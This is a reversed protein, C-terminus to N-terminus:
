IRTHTQYHPIPFHFLTPSFSTFYCTDIKEKKKHIEVERLMTVLVLGGSRDILTFLPSTPSQLFDIVKNNLSTKQGKNNKEITKRFMKFIANILM